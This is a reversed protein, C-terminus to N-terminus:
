MYINTMISIQMLDLRMLTEQSMGIKSIYWWPYKVNSYFHYVTYQVFIHEIVKMNNGLIIRVSNTFLVCRSCWHFRLLNYIVLQSTVLIDTWWIRFQFIFSLIKFMLYSFASFMCPAGSLINSDELPLYPVVLPSPIM